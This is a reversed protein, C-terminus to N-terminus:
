MKLLQNQIKQSFEQSKYSFLYLLYRINQKTLTNVILPNVFQTVGSLLATGHFSLGVVSRNRLARGIHIGNAADDADHAAVVGAHPSPDAVQPDVVALVTHEHM